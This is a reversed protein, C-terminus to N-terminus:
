GLLPRLLPVTVTISGATVTASTPSADLSVSEGVTAQVTTSAPTTETPPTVTIVSNVTSRATGTGAGVNISAGTGTNTVQVQVGAVPADSSGVPAPPRPTGPTGGPVGPTGGGGPPTGGTSTGGGPTPAPTTPVPQVPTPTSTGPTRVPAPREGSTAGGSTGARREPVVSTRSERPAIPEATRTPAVVLPQLPADFITGEEPTFFIGASDDVDVDGADAPPALARGAPDVSWVLLVLAAGALLMAAAFGSAWARGGFSWRSARGFGMRVAAVM